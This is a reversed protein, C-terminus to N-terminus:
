EPIPNLIRSEFYLNRFIGSGRFRGYCVDRTTPCTHQVFLVTTKQKGHTFDNQLQLWIWVSKPTPALAPVLYKLHRSGSSFRSIQTRAAYGQYSSHSFKRFTWTNIESLLSDSRLIIKCAWREKVLPVSNISSSVVSSSQLYLITMSFPHSM